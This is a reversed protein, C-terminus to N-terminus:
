PTASDRPERLPTMTSRSLATPEDLLRHLLGFVHGSGRNFMSQQAHGSCMGTADVAVAAQAESRSRTFNAAFLQTRCDILSAGDRQRRDHFGANQERLFENEIVLGATLSGSPMIAARSSTRTCMTVTADLASCFTTV